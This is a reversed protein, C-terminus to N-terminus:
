KKGLKDLRELLLRHHARLAFLNTGFRAPVQTGRIEVDVRELENRIRDLGANHASADMEEEVRQLM